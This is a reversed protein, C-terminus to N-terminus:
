IPTHSLLEKKGCIQREEGVCCKLHKIKHTYLTNNKTLDGKNMLDLETYLWLYFNM